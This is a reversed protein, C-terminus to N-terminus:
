IGSYSQLGQFYSNAGSDTGSVPGGDYLRVNAIVGPTTTSLTIQNVTGWHDAQGYIPVLAPSRYFQLSAIMENLASAQDTWASAIWSKSAFTSLGSAMGAPNCGSPWLTSGTRATCMSIITNEWGSPPAMDSYGRVGMMAAGAFSGATSAAQTAHL